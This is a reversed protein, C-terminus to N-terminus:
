TSLIRARFKNKNINNVIKLILINFIYLQTNEIKYNYFLIIFYNYFNWKHIIYINKNYWM